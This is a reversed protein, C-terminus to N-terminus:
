GALKLIGVSIEVWNPLLQRVRITQMFYNLFADKLLSDWCWLDQWVHIQTGDGVYFIIHYILYCVQTTGHIAKLRPPPVKQELNPVYQIIIKLFYEQRPKNYRIVKIKGVM